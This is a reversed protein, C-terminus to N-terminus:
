GEMIAAALDCQWTVEVGAERLMVRAAGFSDKFREAMGADPEMRSPFRRRRSREPKM